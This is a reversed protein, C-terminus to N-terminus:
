LQRKPLGIWFMKLSLLVPKVLKTWCEAKLRYPKEKKEQEVSVKLTVYGLYTERAGEGFWITSESQREIIVHEAVSGPAAGLMTVNSDIVLFERRYVGTHILILPNEMEEGYNYAADITDFFQFVPAFCLANQRIWSSMCFVGARISSSVGVMISRGVYREPHRQYEDHYNPRVHLARYQLLLWMIDVGSFGM